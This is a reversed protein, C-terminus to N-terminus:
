RLNNTYCIDPTRIGAKIEGGLLCLGKRFNILAAGARATRGSRAIPQWSGAAPDFLWMTSRFRFAAPPQLLYSKQEEPKMSLAKEFVTKDVGGLCLIRGDELTVVCGGTLTGGDPIPPLQQWTRRRPDYRYGNASVRKAAPDFGGWLYLFHGAAVMVPQVMPEPLTACHVWGKDASQLDLSWLLDSANGDALGGALYVKGALLAGAAQEIKAPLPAMEEIIIKAGKPRLAAVRNHAGKENAGGILMLRDDLAISVGYASPAPLEGCREWRHERFRWIGDYFAKKGGEAVPTAPFNAGGAALLEKGACGAYMASVGISYGAASPDIEPLASWPVPEGAGKVVDRLKVAQFLLQATSGEYLIGITEGDIMTLCSYGWGEEEDLLLRNEPQWTYGGDLSARITLHNRGKTTDPNSFLLIDRGLVNESRDVQLLSAMCVPERLAGSSPHERWTHGLDRTTFVARGTKRNDRMNLMLVGSEVEAVQSETTNSKARSGFHWTRGHDQSYIIGANPIRLSDIYQIPFVLTGDQMRIGRGPGQLTLGWSPDKVQATINRPESWTRGDDRSSVLLLQATEEPTMGAGVGTWARDNGIGHVWVAMVLIEGTQEDVLISPDGIGNQAEPLGGWCGKDMIIRMPEWTRGGDTSRSIGVDIDEQLDLSTRHRVDYVGILTGAPTTVLGPIRYAYVGDDNHQRVAVGLRRAPAADRDFAADAGDIGIRTVALDFPQALRGGRTLDVAVSVYFRHRGRPLDTGSALWTVGTESPPAIPQPIVYHPDCYLSQSGGIRRFQDKMAWSTTRSWLASMTGTYVLRLSEFAQRPLEGGIVVEAGDFRLPTAGQNEICIEAVINYPRDVLVPICTHHVDIRVQGAGTAAEAAGSFLGAALLLSGM